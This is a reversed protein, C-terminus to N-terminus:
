QDDSVVLPRLIGTLPDPGLKAGQVAVHVVELIRHVLQTLEEPIVPLNPRASRLGVMMSSIGSPTMSRRSCAGAFGPWAPSFGEPFAASFGLPEPRLGARPLRRWSYREREWTSFESHILRYRM